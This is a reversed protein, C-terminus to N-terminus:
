SKTKEIVLYSSKDDWKHQPFEKNPNVMVRGEANVSIGLRILGSSAPGVVALGEATFVSEHGRCLIRTDDNPDRYLINGMHPCTTSAAYLHGQYRIVFFDHQIFEESIGDKDFRKLSGIDVPPLGGATAGSAGGAAGLVCGSAVALFRRRNILPLPDQSGQCQGQENGSACRCACLRKDDTRM